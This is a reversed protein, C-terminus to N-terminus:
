QGFAEVQYISYGWYNGHSREKMVISFYRVRQEISLTDTRDGFDGQSRQTALWWDVGNQSVWIEYQRANAAEWHIMINNLQQQQGLDLTIWQGRNVHNSEWRTSRNGDIADRAPQRQSSATADVIPLRAAQSEGFTHQFNETDYAGSANIVTFFYSVSDGSNLNPIRYQHQGNTTTMRVNMQTGNNVRYHLDVREGTNATIIMTNGSESICYTECEGNDSTDDNDGGQDNDQNDDSDDNNNGNDSDNDSDQGGDNNSDANFIYRQWQTDRAGTADIVTFFYDIVDGETLNEILKLSTENTREMRINQQVGNNVIYHIDVQQGVSAKVLLSSGQEIFCFENCSAPDDNNDDSSDDDSGNDNSDDNDSNDDDDGSDGPAGHGRIGFSNAAITLQTGDSFSVVEPTEKFNYAVYTRAGNKEYVQAIPSSATINGKGTKIHGLVNLTHLWHYTHAITEGAEVDYQFNMTNFDAIAAEPNTMALINWWVDRWQDNGLGSPKGNFSESLGLAVYDSLYDAHLGIHMVLPNLPLGQIGLIHAYKGSFWTSFVHGSGWIISTTMKNYEPSFNDFPIDKGHFRDINNWYEWYTAASLTHLYIGHETLENNNTIMGYLIIAGYANAAESTSENNNGLVFNAHGSAWSFGNAPDFNRVYPFMPDDRLAAYDRILLEVMGGWASPACWSKDTRCIEAAARVFYGYHFHHDNLQQQAGFSEDYGLLTNWDENYSFYKSSNPQGNTTATFWDELESKLWEILAVREQDLGLQDALAAVEAVKGYNKGAWYTDSKTNWYGPGRAVFDGILQVLKTRDYSQNLMPMTPLVGVFSLQYEFANLSSFKIYGRASRVRDQSNISVVSNKWHLPMLGIFTEVAQGNMLYEHRVSVQQTTSNLDYNVNVQDITNTAHEAFRNIKESSPTIEGNDSDMPILAITVRGSNNVISINNSSVNKFQTAGHGVVLFHNRNGAVDTWLGIQNSSQHYIGKEPGDASRSRIILEGQLTDIFVYPSGHVFTARMVPQESHQWEVTMSGDSYDFLKAELSSYQSNAIALGDFVEDFPAPVDYTDAIGNKFAMGAPISAMRFGRNTIRAAIPDPTIYGSRSNDGIPMEGYFSVSGWWRHTGTPKNAAPGTLNPYLAKPSGIPGQQPDCGDIAPDVIGANSIWSGYDNVCRFGEPNAQDSISGAGVSITEAVSNLSIAGSAIVIYILYRPTNRWGAKDTVVRNVAIKHRLSNKFSNANNQFIFGYINNSYRKWNAVSKTIARRYM